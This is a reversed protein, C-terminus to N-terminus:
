KGSMHVTLKHTARILSNHLYYSLRSRTLFMQQPCYFAWHLRIGRKIDVDTPIGRVIRSYFRWDLCFIKKRTPTTVNIETTTPVLHSIEKLIRDGIGEFMTNGGTLVINQYLKPHTKAECQQVVDVISKHLGVGKKSIMEPNFLAENVLRLAGHRSAAEGGVTVRQEMGRMIEPFKPYGAVTPFTAIPTDHGAFGAKSISSGNDIVLPILEDESM